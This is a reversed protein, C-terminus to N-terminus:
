SESGDGAHLKSYHRYSGRTLVQAAAFSGDHAAPADVSGLKPIHVRLLSKKCSCLKAVSAALLKRIDVEAPQGGAQIGEHVRDQVSGTCAVRAPHHKVLYPGGCQGRRVTSSKYGPGGHDLVLQGDVFLWAENAGRVSVTAGKQDEFTAQMLYFTQKEIHGGLLVFVALLIDAPKCM